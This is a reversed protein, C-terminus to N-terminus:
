MFQKHFLISFVSCHFSDTCVFSANKILFIFNSPDIDYLLFDGLQNDSPFYEDNHCLAVIKCGTKGKLKLAAKRAELNKGLFYCLIYPEDIVINPEKAIIEWEERTLLMSPDAVIEAKKNSLSDVIHKGSEERVGIKEFRDLYSGTDKRQFVPIESVGFSTAYAIKPISDDVFLLNYYKSYLSM